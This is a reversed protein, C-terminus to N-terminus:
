KDKVKVGEISFTLEVDESKPGLDTMLGYGAMALTTSGEFGIRYGGWPDDGQGIFEIAIEIPKTVGHMTFDGKLIGKRHKSDKSASAPVYGTSVFKAEPFKEVDLFDESRLHKDREAHNSDVSTTKITVEVKTKEPAKEDYSFTGAFDNFRGQLWSYGLHQVKFQIFAHMGKTDMEYDAAKAQIASLLLGISLISTMLTSKKM